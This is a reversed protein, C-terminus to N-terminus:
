SAGAAHKISSTSLLTFRKAEEEEEEEEERIFPAKTL